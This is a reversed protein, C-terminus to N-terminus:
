GMRHPSRLVACVDRRLRRELLRRSRLRRELLRRSRLRRELLRRSRLCLPLNRSLVGQKYHPRRNESSYEGGKM